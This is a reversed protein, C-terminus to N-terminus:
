FTGGDITSIDAWVGDGRLFTTASPTGTANIQNINLLGAINQFNLTVLATYLDQLWKLWSWAIGSGTPDKGSSFQTRIPPPSLTNM